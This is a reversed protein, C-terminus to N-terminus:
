FPEEYHTSRVSAAGYLIRSFKDLFLSRYIWNDLGM